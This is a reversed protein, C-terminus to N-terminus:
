YNRGSRTPQLADCDEGACSETRSAGPAYLAVEDRRQGSCIRQWEAVLEDLLARAENPPPEPEGLYRRWLAETDPDLTM